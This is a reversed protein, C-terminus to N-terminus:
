RLDEITGCIADKDPACGILTILRNDHCRTCPLCLQTKESWYHSEQEKSSCDEYSNVQGVVLATLLILILQACINYSEMTIECTKRNQKHKKEKSFQKSKVLKKSKIEFQNNVWAQRSNSYFRILRPARQNKQPRESCTQARVICSTQRAVKAQCM